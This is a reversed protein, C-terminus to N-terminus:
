KKQGRPKRVIINEDYGDHQILSKRVEDKDMHGHGYFVRNIKKSKLYVDFFM